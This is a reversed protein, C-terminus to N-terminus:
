EQCPILNLLSFWAFSTEQRRLISNGSTGGRGGRIAKFYHRLSYSMQRCHVNQLSMNLHWPHTRVPLFNLDSINWTSTPFWVLPLVQFLHFARTERLNGMGGSNDREPWTPRVQCYKPFWIINWFKEKLWVLWEQFHATMCWRQPYKHQSNKNPLIKYQPTEAMEKDRGKEAGARKRQM